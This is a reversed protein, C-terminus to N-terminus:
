GGGTLKLYLTKIEDSNLRNDQGDYIIRGKDMFLIRDALDLGQNFDHTIMVITKSQEKLDSLVSHLIAIAQQDLGTYPEDLFLVDPQHILARAIALRQQMGRSFTRVPENLYFELGVQRILDQIRHQIDEVNYMRAYYLLNENATLNEYLLTHHSIMGLRRRLNSQENGSDIGAVELKGSTAKSLLSLIKMLTSKGAGNPGFIMVFEGSPIHLDIGHLIERAGIKKTLQTAVLM